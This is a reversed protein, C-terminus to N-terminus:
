CMRCFLPVPPPAVTWSGPAPAPTTQLPAPCALTLALTELQDLRQIFKKGGGRGRGGVCEIM